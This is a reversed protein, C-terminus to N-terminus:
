SVLGVKKLKRKAVDVYVSLHPKRNEIIEKVEIWTRGSNRLFCVSAVLELWDSKGKKFQLEPKFIDQIERIKKTVSETLPYESKRIKEKDIARVLNYYDDSLASSYPGKLYWNFEYGLDIGSAQILCIAKQLTKRDVINNTRIRIGVEELLLKLAVLKRDM